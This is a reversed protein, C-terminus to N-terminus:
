FLSGQEPTPKPPITKKVSTGAGTTMRGDHVEIEL